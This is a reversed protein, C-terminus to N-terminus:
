LYELRCKSVQRTAVSAVRDLLLVIGSDGFCVTVQKSVSAASPM